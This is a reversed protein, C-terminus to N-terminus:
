CWAVFRNIALRRDEAMRRTERRLRRMRRLWDAAAPRAMIQVAGPTQFTVGGSPHVALVAWVGEAGYRVVYQRM